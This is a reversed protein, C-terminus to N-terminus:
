TLKNTPYKILTLLKRRPDFVGGCWCSNSVTLDATILQPSVFLWALSEVGPARIDFSPRYFFLRVGDCSMKWTKNTGNTTQISKNKEDCNKKGGYYKWPSERFRHVHFHVSAQQTTKNDIWSSMFDREVEMFLLVLRVEKQLKNVNNIALAWDGASISKDCNISSIRRSHKVDMFRLALFEFRKLIRQFRTRGFDVSIIKWSLFNSPHFGYLTSNNTEIGVGFELYPQWTLAMIFDFLRRVSKGVDPTM